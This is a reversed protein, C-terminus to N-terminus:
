GKWPLLGGAVAPTLDVEALRGEQASPWPDFLGLSKCLAALEVAAPTANGGLGSWCSRLYQYTQHVSTNFPLNAAALVVLQDPGALPEQAAQVAGIALRGPLLRWVQEWRISPLSNGLYDIVNPPLLPVADYPLNVTISSGIRASVYAQDAFRPCAFLWSPECWLGSRSLETSHMGAVAAGLSHGTLLLRDANTFVAALEPWLQNAITVFPAFCRGPAPGYPLAGAGAVYYFWARTGVTGQYALIVRNANRAWLIGPVFKEADGTIEGIDDAELIASLEDHFRAIPLYALADLAMLMFATEPQIYNQYM